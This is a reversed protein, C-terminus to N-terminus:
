YGAKEANHDRTRSGIKVWKFEEGIVIDAEYDIYHEIPGDCDSGGWSKYAKITTDTFKYVIQDFAWGEETEDEDYNKLKTIDKLTKALLM